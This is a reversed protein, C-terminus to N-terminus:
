KKKGTDLSKLLERVATDLQSDKREYSEGIMRTVAIDVARPNREMNQGSNDTIRIRPLRLVSGDLLESGSTYIIWGATKEGVISGLKMSRYGETFDEADSLSHQNVVLITPRELSRQGLISRAPVTTAGRPTMNLFPRRSLVDLAYANVFGGNNNRIDVVVGERGTNEADLDLYLQDLSSASMDLMHVYGLRGGSAKHVYDRMDEVWHRYLLAKEQTGSVPSVAIERKNAGAADDAISLDVRRGSKHELLEVLNTRADMAAGDVATLYQGPKIGSVDAPSLRIVEIIRLRGATEYEQRDFRIGLNGTPRPMTQPPGIGTHSANLEGIMLSLVRRLEDPTRSAEVYPAARTRQAAWDIGHFKEDYFHNNLFSWAQQFVETKDRAFDVDVDATVAVARAQRSELNMAQVRGNELYFIEKSDPTFWVDRRTGATSTLQRAVAPERSLEDLSYSWLNVQGAASGALVLTKGDPSITQGDVDVGVPLLTLRQRIGEPVIRVDKSDPGAPKVPEVPPGPAAATAPKPTEDRFLDRFQDERFRPTRPILDIRAIRGQETRQGTEFLLYKGDPSWSIAGGGTNPLFSAAIPTGGSAAIGSAAVISVNQFLRTGASSAWAIWKSDPSWALPRNPDLPPLTFLGSALEREAKTGADIVMLKRGARFFAIAKGDPSWFPSVDTDATSTLPTEINTQLDYLYLRQVGARDSAYVIRRNDPSWIPNSELGSTRTIRTATGGDKASAAFVDGRAVFAIKKGDKSLSLDRFGSTMPTRVPEPAAPVGRLQILVEAAKGSGPEVSWIGFDREFVILKGDRSISPWLVRGASFKTIQRPAGGSAATTWINESGSRDSMFYLQKGDASWMPWADKCGGASIRDYKPPTADHRLWIESEDIHSHGNRWWQAATMAKATIAVTESQVPNPAAFYEAAYRDASYPMPTGGAAAVRYVDSMGAIDGLTTSFYLYKGDASWGDVRELGEHFTLRKLNGAAIDLLYVDGNGSRTSTFALHKGDPSYLPRSETAPHSVLLRATGGAPSATWIDGGSVFAIESRDPAVSPEYLPARRTQAAVPLLLLCALALRHQM